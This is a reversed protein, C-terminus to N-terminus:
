YVEVISMNFSAYRNIGLNRPPISIFQGWTLQFYPDGPDVVTLFPMTTGVSKIMDMFGVYNSNLGGQTSLKEFKMKLTDVQVRENSARFFGETKTQYSLDNPEVSIDDTIDEDDTVTFARGARIAGIEIFGCENLPDLVTIKFYRYATQLDELLVLHKEAWVFTSSFAPVAWSNSINAKLTVVATDSLNHNLIAFVNVITDLDNAELIIEQAVDVDASRWTERLPNSTLNAKNFDGAATSTVSLVNVGPNIPDPAGVSFEFLFKIGDAM